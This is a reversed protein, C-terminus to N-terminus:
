VNYYFNKIEESCSDIIEKMKNLQPIDLELLKKLKDGRLNTPEGAWKTESNIIELMTSDFNSIDIKQKYYDQNYSECQILPNGVKHYQTSIPSDLFRQKTWVPNQVFMNILSSQDLGWSGNKFHNYYMEFTIDKIFDVKKPRFGCLGALIITHPIIHNTHTRLTSVYFRDENLFFLTSRIEDENPISDIDRCLVVDSEKNFLPKYRWMTPETDRYDYPMFVLEVNEMKESIKELIEFLPNNKIENSLHIKIKVNPYVVSNVAMSAPINYWYREQTNHLDWTRMEKHLSKPTFFCYSIILSEM